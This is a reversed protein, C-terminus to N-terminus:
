AAPQLSHQTRAHLELRGRADLQGDPEAERHGPGLNRRLRLARHHRHRRPHRIAAPAPRHDLLGARRAQGAAALVKRITCCLDPNQKWLEPGNIDAQEEVTLDPELSEIGFGFFDELRKKLALTEPFLLGTDLTFVPFALNSQKALHMMVLGAGQFSTGIAARTGFRQWAWALIEETPQQNFQQDLSRVDAPTLKEATTQLNGKQITLERSTRTLADGGADREVAVRECFDGFREGGHREQLYRVLLLRLENMLEEGKVSDKYLRNLRTSAENGGLYIQYKNPAKGVFAIEAMYPRACGNPCGTMRIIIEEDRLGLEALLNEVQTLVDPMVRESEALALGCTPLAPCAM